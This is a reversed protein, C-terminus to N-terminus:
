PPVAAYQAIAQRVATAAVPTMELRTKPKGVPGSSAKRASGDSSSSTSLRSSHAVCACSSAHGARVLASLIEQRRIQSPSPLHAASRGSSTQRCSSSSACDFTRGAQAVVSHAGTGALAAAALV